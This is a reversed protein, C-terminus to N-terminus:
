QWALPACTPPRQFNGPWFLPHIEPALYLSSAPPVAGSSIAQVGLRAEQQQHQHQSLCAIPANESALGLSAMPAASVAGVALVIALLGVIRRNLM